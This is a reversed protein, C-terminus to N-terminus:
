SLRMIKLLSAKMIAFVFIRFSMTEVFKTTRAYTTSKIELLLLYLDESVRGVKDMSKLTELFCVLHKWCENDMMYM